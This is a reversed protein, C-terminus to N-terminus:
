LLREVIIEDVYRGQLKVQRSATGVIRFGQNRYTALAGPNDARIYTFLKEYRKRRAAGFTAEFLRKAVGQRRSGLDVYTGLIGVHDFAHSYAAFPEISQFGVVANDDVRLAVHFIDREKLRSIYSREDEVTFLTDFVTFCGAEIISNFVRVIGAADDPTADRIILDM